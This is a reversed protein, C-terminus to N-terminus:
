NSPMESRRQEVRIFDAVADALKASLPREPQNYAARNDDDDGVQVLVHNMRELWLTRATAAAEALRDFDRRKLQLDRGGGVILVPVNLSRLPEIPDAVLVSAIGAQRAPLIDLGAPLPDVIRGAMIQDIARLIPGAWQPEIQEALQEKMLDGPRRSVASLLVLGAIAEHRAACTAVLGGESHGIVFVRSFRAQSKLHGILAVADDVYHDFRFDERRGFAAKWGRAGRKDYRLTAIGRVHLEEALKKLTGPRVGSGDGNRDTPGSGAILLAVPPREVGDPSRLVGDISGVRVVVEGAIM